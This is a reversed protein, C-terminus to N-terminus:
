FFRWDGREDDSSSRSYPRRSLHQLSAEVLLVEPPVSLHQLRQLVVAGQDCTPKVQRSVKKVIDMADKFNTSCAPELEGNAKSEKAVRSCRSLHYADKLAALKKAFLTGADEVANAEAKLADFRRDYEHQEKELTRLAPALAKEAKKSQRLYALWAAHGSGPLSVLTRAAREKESPGEVITGPLCRCAERNDTMGMFGPRLESKKKLVAEIGM